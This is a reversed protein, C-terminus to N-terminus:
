VRVLKYDPAVGIESSDAPYNVTYHLTVQAAGGLRAELLSTLQNELYDKRGDSTIIKDDPLALSFMLEPSEQSVTQLIM